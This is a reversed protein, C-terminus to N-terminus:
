LSIPGKIWQRKNEDFEWMSGDVTIAIWRGNRDKHLSTNVMKGNIADKFSHREIRNKFLLELAGPSGMAQRFEGQTLLIFIAPPQHHDSPNIHLQITFRIFEENEVPDSQELGPLGSLVRDLEASKAAM